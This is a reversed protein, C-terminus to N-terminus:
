SENNQKEYDLLAQPLPPDIYDPCHSRRMSNVEDLMKRLNKLDTSVGDPNKYYIGVTEDVFFLKADQKAARIWMDSDAATLYKEDFFGYRDHLDRRWLPM